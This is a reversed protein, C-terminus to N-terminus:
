STDRYPHQEEVNQQRLVIGVQEAPVVGPQWAGGWGSWVGESPSDLLRHNLAPGWHLYWPFLTMRTLAWCLCGRTVVLKTFGVADEQLKM